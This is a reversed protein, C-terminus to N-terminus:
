ELTLKVNNETLGIHQLIVERPPSQFSYLKSFYKHQEMLIEIPEEIIKNGIILTMANKKVGNKHQM